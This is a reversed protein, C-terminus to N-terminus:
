NRIKRPRGVPRFLSELRLLKATDNVWKGVGFPLGKNVSKRIDFLSDSSEKQNLFETFLKPIPVPWTDLLLAQEFTGYERRWASGWQWDEVKEVLGARLPNREVYRIVTLLHDDDQIPFSKYRGQYLHGTGTTNHIVHWRQTHIMTLWKMFRALDGDRRPHLVFHWHNPMVAYALIRMGSKEKAETLIKEFYRYEHESNFIVTRGNSRNLVHYIIDGVDNRLARPM